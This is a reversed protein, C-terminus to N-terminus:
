NTCSHLDPSNLSSYGEDKSQSKRNTELVSEDEELAVIAEDALELPNPPRVSTSM